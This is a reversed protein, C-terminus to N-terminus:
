TQLPADADMLGRRRCRWDPRGAAFAPLAADHSVFLALGLPAFMTASFAVTIAALVNAIPLITEALKDRSALVAAPTVVPRSRSDDAPM